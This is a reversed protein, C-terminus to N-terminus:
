KLGSLNISVTETKAVTATATDTSSAPAADTATKAATATDTASATAADKDSPAVASDTKKDGCSAFAVACAAVGGMLLNKNLTNM